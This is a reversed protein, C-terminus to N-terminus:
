CQQTTIIPQTDLIDLIYKAQVQPTQTHIKSVIGSLLKNRGFPVIVRIGFFVRDELEVPIRYTFTTSLPLPLLVDAFYTVKEM